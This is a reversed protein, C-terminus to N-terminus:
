AIPGHMIPHHERRDMADSMEHLVAPLFLSLRDPGARCFRLAAGETLVTDKHYITWTITAAGSVRHGEALLLPYRDRLGNGRFFFVLLCVSVTGTM